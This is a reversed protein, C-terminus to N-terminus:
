KFVEITNLEPTGGSNGCGAAIYINGNVITAGTGHRGRVLNPLKVWKMNKTDLAEVESHAQKQTASEGGIILFMQDSVVAACGARETPINLNEPLTQWRNESFDYVDVAAETLNLYKNIKGSSRRGGAVYLKNNIVGVGMHDRAHPADELKRWTNTSPDFEDFWAVHGDWHGDLAGGILYIKNKFVTCGAAGRLRDKPIEPGKRWEDNEVNYIFINEVPKEHPFQLSGTFAGVIYIENDYVVAQFHHLEIPTEAQKTWTQTNIDFIETPKFGRGGILIIKDGISALSNEHRQTCPNLLNITEWKQAYSSQVFSFIITFLTFQILKM